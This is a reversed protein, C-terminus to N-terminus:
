AFEWKYGGALKSRGALNNAISTPSVGTQRWAERASTYTAVLQGNADLQRVPKGPVFDPLGLREKEAKLNERARIRNCEKCFRHGEKNYYSNEETYEHGKPCHSVRLDYRGHCRKCLEQWDSRDWMYTGSKNSWEIRGETKGCFECKSAKGWMKKVWHHIKSYEKSTLGGLPKRLKSNM